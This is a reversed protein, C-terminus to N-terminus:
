VKRYERVGGYIEILGMDYVIKGFDEPEEGQWSVTGHLIYGRPFLIKDHIYKIWDEYEYFKEGGNWVIARGDETPVWQCWLSPQTKPPANYNIVNPEKDQGMYGEGDLFFEGEEGYGSIDRAMRRTKALKILFSKTEGNLSVKEGCKNRVEFSGEFYTTYGM